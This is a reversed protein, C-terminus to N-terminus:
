PMYESTLLGFQIFKHGVKALRYRVQIDTRGGLKEAIQVWKKPECQLCSELLRKDEAETWKGKKLSPNSVRNWRQNCQNASKQVCNSQSNIYSAVEQWSSLGFQSIAQELLQIEIESWTNQESGQPRKKVDVNQKDIDFKHSKEQQNRFAVKEEPAKPKISPIQLQQQSNQSTDYLDQRGLYQQVQKDSQIDLSQISQQLIQLSLNSIQEFSSLLSQQQVIDFQLLPEETETPEFPVCEKYNQYTYELCDIEPKNQENEM